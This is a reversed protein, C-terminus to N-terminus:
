ESAGGHMLDILLQQQVVSLLTHLTSISTGPLPTWGFGGDATIALVMGGVTPLDAYMEAAKTLAPTADQNDDQPADLREGTGIDHIEAM